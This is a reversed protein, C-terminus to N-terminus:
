RGEERASRYFRDFGDGYWDDVLACVGLVIGIWAGSAARPGLIPLKVSVIMQCAFQYYPSAHFASQTRV